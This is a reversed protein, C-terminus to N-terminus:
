RSAEEMQRLREQQAALGADLQRQFREQTARAQELEQKKAAAVTAAASGGDAVGCATVLAAALVIASKM